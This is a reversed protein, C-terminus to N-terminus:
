HRFHAVPCAQHWSDSHGFDVQLGEATVGQRGAEPGM